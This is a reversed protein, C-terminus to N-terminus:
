KIIEKVWEFFDSSLDNYYPILAEPILKFLSAIYDCIKELNVDQEGYYM